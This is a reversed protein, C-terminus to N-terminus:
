IPLGHAFAKFSTAHVYQIDFYKDTKSALHNSQTNVDTSTNGLVM